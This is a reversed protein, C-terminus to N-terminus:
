AREALAAVAVIIVVAIVFVLAYNFVYGTQLGRLLHGADVTRAASGDVGADNVVRRDIERILAAFTLVVRDIVWQAAADIYFRNFVLRPLNGFSELASPDVREKQNWYNLGIGIGAVATLTSALALLTNLHFQRHGETLFEIVDWGFTLIIGLVAALAALILLPAGMLFPPDHLAPAHREDNGEGAAARGPEGQTVVLALRTMYLASLFSALIAGFFIVYGAVTGIELAPALLGEKSFFGSLPPFGALSVSGIIFVAATLPMARSLGRMEYLSAASAHIAHLAAGAALFLLAKFYGHTLLHFLGGSPDRHAPDAVLGAAGLAAMMLGLQSVTSYALIRKVDIEGLALLGALIATVVGIAAAFWLVAPAAVFLDFMRAVLFVGAAVMTAAHILASVPTPGEMADPLWIHFPFQASKGMAGLFLLFAVLTAESGDLAAIVGRIDFTGSYLYALIIGILLGVDGFRTTIFAKKAAEAASRREWYFGILLFSCLGVLEWSIYLLLLSGTLVLALMSAAFLSHAAYYWGFRPEGRMYELSYVQVALSVSTVLIMMMVSISDVVYSLGFEAGGASLWVIRGEYQGDALYDGLAGLSGIFALGIAGISVYSAAKPLVQLRGVALIVFAALPLAAVLWAGQAGIPIADLLATM